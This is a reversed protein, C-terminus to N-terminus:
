VINATRRSREIRHCSSQHFADIIHPPLVADYQHACRVEIVSQITSKDSFAAEIQMDVQIQRVLVFARSNELRLQGLPGSPLDVNLRKRPPCWAPAGRLDTTQDFPRSEESGLVVPLDLLRVQATCETFSATLVPRRELFDRPTVDNQRRFRFRVKSVQDPQHIGCITFPELQWHGGPEQEHPRRPM